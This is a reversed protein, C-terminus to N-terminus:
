REGALGGGGTQAGGQPMVLGQEIAGALADAIGYMHNYAAEALDNARGIEGSAFAKVQDLLQQEHTTLSSVLDDTPLVGGTAESLLGAYRQALEEFRRATRDEAAQDGDAVAVTYDVFLDIHEAWVENFSAAREPGWVADAAATLDDSNAALADAAAGFDPSGRVGARMVDVALGAHEGLLRGLASRLEEPAPREGPALQGGGADLQDATPAGARAAAFARAVTTALPFMQAYAQRQLEYARAYDEAAYADIQGLMADLHVGIGQALTEPSIGSGTVEALRTAFRQRYAELDDRAQQARDANGNAIARAYALVDEIHGFWLEEFEVAREEGAIAAAVERLQSTNDVLSAEADEAQAPDRTLEDRSTRIDLLAHHGLLRELTTRLALEDDLDAAAVPVADERREHGATAGDRLDAATPEQVRAAPAVGVSSAQACSAAVFALLAAALRRLASRPRAPSTPRSSSSTDEIM